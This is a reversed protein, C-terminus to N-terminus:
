EPAVPIGPRKPSPNNSRRKCKARWVEGAALPRGRHTCTPLAALSEMAAIRNKLAKQVKECARVEIQRVRERSGGFEAALDELTMPEDVLRRAEFIGRERPNLVGIAGNLAKRRHDLEEHEAHHSGADAFRKVAQMLGVNGESVVESIPLGYGRYGM